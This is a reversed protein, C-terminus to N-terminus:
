SIHKWLRGKEIYYITYYDVNFQKALQVKAVGNKLSQKIYKVNENTLKSLPQQEGKMQRGKNVKDNVNDQHTGIFLHTPNVCSPNDCKHLVQAEKSIKGYTLEYAIRHARVNRYRKNVYFYGYHKQPHKYAQWEWCEDDSKKAVKSWFRIEFPTKERM